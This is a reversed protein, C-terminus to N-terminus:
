IKMLPPKTKDLFDNTSRGAALLVLGNVKEAGLRQAEVFADAGGASYGVFYKSVDKIKDLSILSNTMLAYLYENEIWTPSIVLANMSDAVHKV